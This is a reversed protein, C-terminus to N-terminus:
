AAAQAKRKRRWGLLGLAGLGTAFLSLAAPLPTANVADGQTVYRIVETDNPGFFLGEYAINIPNVGSSILTNVFSLLLYRKGDNTVLLFDFAYLYNQAFLFSTTQNYTVPVFIPAAPAVTTTIDFDSVTGNTEVTFTGFASGGTDFEVNELTWNITAANAHPACFSAATVATLVSLAFGLTGLTRLTM